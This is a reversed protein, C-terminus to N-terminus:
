LTFTLVESLACRVDDVILLTPPLGFVSIKGKQLGPMLDSNILVALIFPVWATM